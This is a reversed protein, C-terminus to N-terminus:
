GPLKAALAARIGSPSQDAYDLGTRTRNKNYTRNKNTLNKNYYQDNEILRVWLTPFSAVEEAHPEKRKASDSEVHYLEAYPTYVFRCGVDVVCFDTDNYDVAFKEDCWGVQAVISVRTVQSASKVASHDRTIHTVANYGVFERPFSHCPHAAGGNSRVVMGVHQISGDFHLLRAGGVGIELHEILEMMSTLWDDRFKEMHDNLLVVVKTRSQQLAFIAQASYSFEGEIELNEIRVGLADFRQVQETTLSSVTWLTPTIVGSQSISSSGCREAIPYEKDFNANVVSTPSHADSAHREAVLADTPQRGDPPAARM